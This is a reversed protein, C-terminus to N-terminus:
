ERAVFIDEAVDRDIALETGQYRICYAPSRQHVEVQTGPTLGFSTLRHLRSHNKPKIYAIRGKEGPSLATLNVIVAQAATRGASCCAGPPIPEGSPTTTPHGILTCIGEEMEPLLTHEVQCAIEERKQADLRLVTGLLSVALRHRRVISRAVESGAKTLRAHDGELVLLDREGLAVLDGPEVPISCRERLGSLSPDGDEAATWAAELIEELAEKM